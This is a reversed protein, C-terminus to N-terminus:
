YHILSAVRVCKMFRYQPYHLRPQWRNQLHFQAARTAQHAGHHADDDRHRRRHHVHVPQLRQALADVVSAALAAGAEGSGGDVQHVLHAGGKTAAETGCGCDWTRHCSNSVRIAM